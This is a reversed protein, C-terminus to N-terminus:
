LDKRKFKRLSFYFPVLVWLCLTAYSLLSGSLSEFSQKFVASTAGMLASADMKLLTLIRALDLPNLLSLGTILRELPYDMLQFLLFLVLGDFLIAFYFWLLLAIGTGRAKDRTHVAALLAIAIFIVSLLLGTLLLTIGTPSPAFILIPVGCGLFFALSLALSLGLFISIWLSSRRIPQASLLEIFESAHYVYITSFVICVLPILMLNVTLLSALSKEPVDEILFLGLAALLLFLMYAIIIKSRLIDLIVYKVIKKM